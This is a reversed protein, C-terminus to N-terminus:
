SSSAATAWARLQERLEHPWLWSEVYLRHGDADRFELMRGCLFLERWWSTGERVLEATGLDLVVPRLGIRTLYRGDISIRQRCQLCLAAGMLAAFAFTVDRTGIALAVCGVTTAAAWNATEPRPRFNMKPQEARQAGAQLM